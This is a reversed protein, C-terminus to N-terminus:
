PVTGGAARCQAELAPAAPSNRERASKASNCITTPGPKVRGLVKPHYTESCYQMCENWTDRCPGCGLISGSGSPCQAQGAAVPHKKACWQLQGGCVSECLQQTMQQAELRTVGLTLCALIVCAGASAKTMAYRRSGIGGILHTVGNAKLSKAKM